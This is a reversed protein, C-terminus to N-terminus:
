LKKLKMKEKETLKRKRLNKKEEVNPTEESMTEEEFEEIKESETQEVEEPFDLTQEVHQEENDDPINKDEENIVKDVIKNVTEQTIKEPEIPKEVETKPSDSQNLKLKRALLPNPKASSEINATRNKLVDKLSM